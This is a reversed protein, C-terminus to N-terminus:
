INRNRKTEQKESVGKWFNKWWIHYKFPILKIIKDLNIM